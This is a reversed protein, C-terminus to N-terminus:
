GDGDRNYRKYLANRIDGFKDESEYGGIVYLTDINKNGKYLRITNDADMKLVHCENSLYVDVDQEQDDEWVHIVFVGRGRPPNSGRPLYVIEAM